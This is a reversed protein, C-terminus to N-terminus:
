IGRSRLVPRSVNDLLFCVFVCAKAFCEYCMCVGCQMRDCVQLAADLAKLDQVQGDVPNYTHGTVTWTRVQTRM